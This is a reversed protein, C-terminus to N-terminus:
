CSQFDFSTDPTSVMIKRAITSAHGPRDMRIAEVRNPTYRSSVWRRKGTYPADIADAARGRLLVVGLRFCAFAVFSRSGESGQDGVRWRDAVDNV